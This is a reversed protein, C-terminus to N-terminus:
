GDTPMRELMKKLLAEIRKLTQLTDYSNLDNM